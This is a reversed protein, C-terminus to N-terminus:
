LLGGFCGIGLYIFGNWVRGIQKEVIWKLLIRGDVSVDVFNDRDKLNKSWFKSDM